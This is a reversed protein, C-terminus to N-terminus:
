RQYLPLEWWDMINITVRPYQRQFAKMEEKDLETRYLEFIKLNPFCECFKEMQFIFAKMLVLHEVNRFFTNLKAMDMYFGILTLKKLNEFPEHVAAQFFDFGTIILEEVTEHCMKSFQSIIHTRMSYEIVVRKIEKRFAGLTKLNIADTIRGARPNRLNTTPLNHSLYFYTEKYRLRFSTSALAKFRSCTYYINALDDTPLADFVALWCDDNLSIRKTRKYRRTEGYYIRKPKRLNYMVVSLSIFIFISYASPYNRADLM